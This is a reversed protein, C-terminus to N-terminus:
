LAIVVDEPDEVPGSLPQDGGSPEHADDAARRRFM